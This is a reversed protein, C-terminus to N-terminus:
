FKLESWTQDNNNDLTLTSIFGPGTKIYRIVQPDTKLM